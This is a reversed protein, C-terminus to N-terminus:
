RDLELVLGREGVVYVTEGVARMAVVLQGLFVSSTWLGDRLVLQGREASVSGTGIAGVWQDVGTALDDLESGDAGVRRLMDATKVFWDEGVPVLVETASYAM